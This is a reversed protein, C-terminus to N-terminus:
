PRTRFRYLSSRLSQQIWVVLVAEASSSAPVSLSTPDISEVVMPIRMSLSDEAAFATVNLPSTTSLNKITVNVLVQVETGGTGTTRINGTNRWMADIVYDKTTLSGTSSTVPRNLFFAVGFALLSAAIASVLGYSLLTRLQTLFLNKYRENVHLLYIQELDQAVNTKRASLAVNKDRFIPWGDSFRQKAEEFSQQSDRIFWRSTYREVDKIAYRYFWKWTQTAQTFPYRYNVQRGHMLFMLGACLIGATSFVVLSLWLPFWEIKNLTVTLLAVSAALWAAAITVQVNRRSEAYEIRKAIHDIMHRLIPELEKLQEDTAGDIPNQDPM